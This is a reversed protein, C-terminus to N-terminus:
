GLTPPPLDTMMALGFVGAPTGPAETPWAVVPAATEAQMVAGRDPVTACALLGEVLRGFGLSSARAHLRGDM